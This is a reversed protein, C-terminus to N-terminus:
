SRKAESKDPTATVVVTSNYAAAGACTGVAVGGVGSRCGAIAPTTPAALTGGYAPTFTATPVPYTKATLTQNTARFSATVTRSSAMDVTCQTGAVSACGSWSVFTANTSAAGPELIVTGTVDSDVCGTPGNTACNISASADSGTATTVVGVANPGSMRPYVTLTAASAAGAALLGVALVLLRLRSTTM